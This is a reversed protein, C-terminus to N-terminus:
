EEGSDEVALHEPDVLFEKQCVVSSFQAVCRVVDASLVPCEQLRLWTKEDGLLEAIWSALEGVVAKTFKPGLVTRREEKYLWIAFKLLPKADEPDVYEVLCTM